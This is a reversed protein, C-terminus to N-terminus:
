RFRLASDAAAPSEGAGRLAQNPESQSKSFHPRAALPRAGRPPHRTQCTRDADTSILSLSCGPTNSGPQAPQPPLYSPLLRLHLRRRFLEALARIQLPAVQLTKAPSRRCARFLSAAPARPIRSQLARVHLLPNSAHSPPTLRVCRSVEAAPLNPAGVSRAPPFARRPISPPSEPHRDPLHERPLPDPYQGRGAFCSPQAPQAVACVIHAYAGAPAIRRAAGSNTRYASAYPCGGGATWAPRLGAPSQASSLVFDTLVWAEKWRFTLRRRHRNPVCEGRHLRDCCPPTQETQAAPPAPQRRSGAPSVQTRERSPLATSRLKARDRRLATDTSGAIRRIGSGARGM